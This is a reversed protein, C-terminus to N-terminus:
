ARRGPMRRLDGRQEARIRTLEEQKRLAAATAALVVDLEAATLPRTYVRYLRPGEKRFVACREPRYLASDGVWAGHWGGAIRLPRQKAAGGLLQVARVIRGAVPGEVCTARIQFTPRDAGEPWFGIVRGRHRGFLLSYGVGPQRYPIEGGHSLLDMDAMGGIHKVVPRWAMQEIESARLVEHRSPTFPTRAPLIARDGVSPVAKKQFSQLFEEQHEAFRRLVGVPAPPPAPLFRHSPFTVSSELCTPLGPPFAPNKRSKRLNM